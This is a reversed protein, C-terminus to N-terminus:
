LTTYKVTRYREALIPYTSTRYSRSFKNHAHATQSVHLTGGDGRQAQPLLSLGLRRELLQVQHQSPRSAGMTWRVRHASSRPVRHQCRAENEGLTECNPDSMDKWVLVSPTYLRVYVRVYVRVRQPRGARAIRGSRFSVMPVTGGETRSFLMLEDPSLM